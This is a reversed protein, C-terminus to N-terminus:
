QRIETLKTTLVDKIVSDSVSLPLQNVNLLNPNELPNDILNYLAESGNEFSIYKHTANRITFNSGGTELGVEAYIYDREDTNSTTLLNKFSSSDNIETIEIESLNAITAFLDTTNILADEIANIRTINKGSIVMPVNV